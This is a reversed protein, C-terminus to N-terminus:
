QRRATASWWEGEISEGIVMWGHDQLVETLSQQESTLVGGLVIAGGSALSREITPLLATIVSSIINVLAVRVPAVLPLLVEVDGELITVRDGVGNRAVNEEANGIADPDLEIAIVRSAGLRAAAIALVASGAGLDAVIDGPRIVDTMLRLVGRTSPHDGTGFAMGPDIVITREAAEPRALWPPAVIFRGTDHSRIQDRWQESWDVDPTDALHVHARPSVDHLRQRLVEREVSPPFHTVIVGRDDQVGQSGLEFLLAVVAEHDDGPASVRVSLWTM